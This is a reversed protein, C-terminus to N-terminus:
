LEFNGSMDLCLVKISPSTEISTSEGTDGAASHKIPVFIVVFAYISISAADGTRSM